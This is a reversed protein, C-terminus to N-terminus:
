GWVAGSILLAPWTGLPMLSPLLWGRWGLEEGFAPIMNLLAGFPIIALQVVVLAQVSMGIEVDGLSAAFGSFSTFDPTLWGFVIAVALSLAVIAIPAALGV